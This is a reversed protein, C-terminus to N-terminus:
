ALSSSCYEGKITNSSALRLHKFLNDHSKQKRINKKQLENQQQIYQLKKQTNYKIKENDQSRHGTAVLTNHVLRKNHNETSNISILYSHM